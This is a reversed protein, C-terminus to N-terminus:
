DSHPLHGRSSRPGRPRAPCTCNGHGPRCVFLPGLRGGPARSRPSVAPSSGSASGRPRPPLRPGKYSGRGALLAPAHKSCRRATDYRSARSRCRCCGSLASGDSPESCPCCGRCGPHLHRSRPRSSMHASNTFLPARPPPQPRRPDPCRRPKPARVPLAGSQAGAAAAEAQLAESGAAAAAAAFELQLVGSRGQPEAARGDTWTVHPVKTSQFVGTSCNASRSYHSPFPRPLKSCDLSHCEKARTPAWVPSGSPRPASAAGPRGAREGPSVLRRGGRGSAVGRGRNQSCNPAFLLERALGLKLDAHLRHRRTHLAAPGEPAGQASSPPGQSM